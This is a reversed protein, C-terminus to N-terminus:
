GLLLQEVVLYFFCPSGLYLLMVAFAGSLKHWISRHLSSEFALFASLGLVIEPVILYVAVRAVMTVNRAHWIPVAWLTAESGVFLLISAVAVTALAINRTSHAAVRRGLLIIIFLPITWMGAMFAPIPGIRLGGTDPFEIVGLPDALFWDPFVQLVSLPVLFLWLKSWEPHGRRWAALPLAVNYLLVLGSVRQGVPIGLPVALVLLCALAFAGHLLIADRDVRELKSM